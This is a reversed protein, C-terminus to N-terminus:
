TMIFPYDKQKLTDIVLKINMLTTLKDRYQSHLDRYYHHAIPDTDVPLITHWQASKSDAYDFRDIWTWGIIYLAPSLHNLIQEAIQLNGIGPRAYSQYGVNLHNALLAPWTSRSPTSEFQDALESGFIFSCGFSKIDM